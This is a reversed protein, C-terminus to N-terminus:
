FRGTLVVGGPSLGVRATAKTQKNKRYSYVLLGAGAGIGAVGLATLTAGGALTNYRNPCDGDKDVLTPTCSPQHPNEDIVILAVGAGALAVGAGVAIWGWVPKIAPSRGRDSAGPDPGGTSVEIPKDSPRLRYEVRERVGRRATWKYEYPLHEPITVTLSHKGDSVTTELPATGVVEGDIEVTAAEPNGTVTIYANASFLSNLRSVQKGAADEVHEELEAAGCIECTSRSTAVPKGTGPDIVELSLNYDGKDNVVSLSILYTADNETALRGACAQDECAGGPDVPVAELGGRGIGDVLKTQLKTKLFDPLEGEIKIPMVGVRKAEDAAEFAHATAAPSALALLAAIGLRRFHQTRGHMTDM